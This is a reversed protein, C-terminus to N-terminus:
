TTVDGDFFYKKTTNIVNMPTMNMIPKNQPRMVLRVIAKFFLYNALGEGDFARELQLAFHLHAGM